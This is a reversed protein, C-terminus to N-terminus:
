CLEQVFKELRKDRSSLKTGVTGIVNGNSPIAVAELSCM